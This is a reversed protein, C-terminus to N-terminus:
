GGLLGWGLGLLAIALGLALLARGWRPRPPAGLTLSAMAAALAEPAPAKAEACLKALAPGLRSPALDEEFLMAPRSPDAGFGAALWAERSMCPLVVVATGWLRWGAAEFHQKWAFMQAKAQAVPEVQRARGLRGALTWVQGCVQAVDGAQFGKVELVVLGWRPHLLLVDAEHHCRHQPSWIPYRLAALGPEKALARQLAAWM